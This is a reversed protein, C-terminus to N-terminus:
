VFLVSKLRPSIPWLNLTSAQLGLMEIMRILTWRCRQLDKGSAGSTMRLQMLHWCEILLGVFVISGDDMTLDNGTSKAIAPSCAFMAALKPGDTQCIHLRLM